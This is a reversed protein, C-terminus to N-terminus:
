ECLISTNFVCMYIYTSYRFYENALFQFITLKRNVWINRKTLWSVNAVIYSIHYISEKLAIMEDLKGYTTTERRTNLQACPLLPQDFRAQILRKM